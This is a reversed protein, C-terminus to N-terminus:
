TTSFPLGSADGAQLRVGRGADDRQEAGALAPVSFKAIESAGSAGCAVGSVITVPGRAQRLGAFARGAEASSATRRPRNPATRRSRAVPSLRKSFSWAVPGDAFCGFPIRRLSIHGDSREGVPM